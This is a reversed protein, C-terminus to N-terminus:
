EGIQAETIYEEITPQRYLYVSVSIAILYLFAILPISTIFFYVSITIMLWMLGIARIKTNKTIGRGTHYDEITKGYKDNSILWEYFRKSSRLYCGAALLILPTTPLVPLFAGIIGLILALTGVIFYAGKKVKVLFSVSEQKL